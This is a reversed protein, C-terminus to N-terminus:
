KILGRDIYDIVSAWPGGAAVTNAFDVTLYSLTMKGRMFNEVLIRDQGVARFYSLAMSRVKQLDVTSKLHTPGEHNRMHGPANRLFSLEEDAYSPWSNDKSMEDRWTRAADYIASGFAALDVLKQGALWEDSVLFVNLPQMPWKPLVKSPYAKLYAKTDTSAADDGDQAESTQFLRKWFRM